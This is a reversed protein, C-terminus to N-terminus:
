RHKSKKKKKKKKKNRCVANSIWDNDLNEPETENYDRQPSSNNEEEQNSSKIYEENSSKIYEEWNNFFKGNIIPVQSGNEDVIIFGGLDEIRRLLRVINNAYRTSQKKPIRNELIINKMCDTYYKDKLECCNQINKAFALYHGENLKTNSKNEEYNLFRQKRNETDQSFALISSLQTEPTISNDHLLASPRLGMKVGEDIQKLIDYGNNVLSYWVDLDSKQERSLYNMLPFKEEEKKKEERRREEEEKRRKKDNETNMTNKFSAM